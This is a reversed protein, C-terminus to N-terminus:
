NIGLWAKEAPTLVWLPQWTGSQRINKFTRGEYVIRPFDWHIKGDSGLFCVADLGRPSKHVARPDDCPISTYPGGAPGIVCRVVTWTPAKTGKKVATPDNCNVTLGPDCSEAAAPEIGGFTLLFFAAVIAKFM